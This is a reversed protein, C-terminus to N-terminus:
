NIKIITPLHLLFPRDAGISIRRISFEVLIQCKKPHTKRSGSLNKIIKALFLSPPGWRPTGGRVLLWHPCWSGDVDCKRIRDNTQIFSGKRKKRKKKGDPMKVFIFFFLFHEYFIFEFEFAM